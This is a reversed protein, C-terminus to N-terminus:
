YAIGMNTKAIEEISIQSQEMWPPAGQTPLRKHVVNKGVKEKSRIKM